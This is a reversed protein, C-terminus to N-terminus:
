KRQLRWWLVSALVFNLANGSWILGLGLQIPNDGKPYSLPITGGVRQGAVILTIAVLAPIFSIAFATLFNGSRFMMGLACGVFTLILCSIAFSLRSNSETVIDNGLITLERILRRKEPTLELAALQARPLNPNVDYESLSRRAVDQVRQPMPVNFQYPFAKRSTVTGDWNHIEVDRLEVSVDVRQTEAVPRANLIAEHAEYV